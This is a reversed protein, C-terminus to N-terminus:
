NVNIQPPLSKRVKYKKLNDLQKVSSENVMLSNLKKEQLTSLYDIVVKLNLYQSRPKKEQNDLKIYVSRPLKISDPCYALPEQLYNLFENPKSPMKCSYGDRELLEVVKYLIFRNTIRKKKTRDKVLNKNVGDIDEEWTTIIEKM